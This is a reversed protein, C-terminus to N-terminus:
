AAFDSAFESNRRAKALPPGTSALGLHDLIKRIAGRENVFAIVKM